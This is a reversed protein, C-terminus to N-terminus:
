TLPLDRLKRKFESFSHSTGCESDVLVQRRIECAIRIGDSESYDPCRGDKSRRRPRLRNRLEEKANVIRGVERGSFDITEWCSCVARVADPFLMWWAEIEWAPTVAVVNLVGAAKLEGEIRSAETLHAPETADCDEHAIVAVVRKKRQMIRVLIAIDEANRRRKTQRHIGRLLVLPRPIKRIAIKSYEPRIARFLEALASRDSDDEGFIVVVRPVDRPTEHQKATRAL